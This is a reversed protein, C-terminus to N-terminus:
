AILVDAAHAALCRLLALRFSQPDDTIVVADDVVALRGQACFHCLGLCHEVQIPLGMRECENFEALVHLDINTCCFMIKVQQVKHM